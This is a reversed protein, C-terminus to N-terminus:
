RAVAWGRSYVCALSEGERLDSKALIHLACGRPDGQHHALLGPYRSLIAGLRRLAGAERDAV